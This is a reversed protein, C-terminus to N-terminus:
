SVPPLFDALFLVTVVWWNRGEKAAAPRHDFQDEVCSSLTTHRVIVFRLRFM